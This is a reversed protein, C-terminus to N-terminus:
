RHSRQVTLELDGERTEGAPLTLPLGRGPGTGPITTAPEIACAHGRGYWPFATSGHLEQWLWAHPWTASPWSVQVSLDLAPNTITYSAREPFDTLCGFVARPEDCGPLTAVPEAPWDYSAGPDLLPGPMEEDALLRGANATLRTDKDVLPHGFAPHHVWNVEIPVPALNTLHEVVRLTPGDVDITRELRLPASTLETELTLKAEGEDTVQWPVLAAEGHFGWITGYARREAGANPCLVQWGGRYRAHWDVWSDGTSPPPGAGAPSGSWPSEFLLNAGLGTPVVSVIDGGRAPDVRVELDPTTLRKM